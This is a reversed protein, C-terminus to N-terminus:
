RLGRSPSHFRSKQEGVLSPISLRHCCSALLTHRTNPLVVLATM